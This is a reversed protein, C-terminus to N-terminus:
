TASPRRPLFMRYYQVGAVTHSFESQFSDSIWHVIYHVYMRVMREYQHYEGQAEAEPIMVLVGGSATTYSYM